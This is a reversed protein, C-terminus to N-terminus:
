GGGGARLGWILGAHGGKAEKSRRPPPRSPGEDYLDDDDEVPRERRRPVPVPVPQPRAETITQPGGPTFVASCKPCRVQTGPPVPNKLRLRAECQPCAVILEGPM